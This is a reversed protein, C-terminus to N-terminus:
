AEALNSQSGDAHTVLTGPVEYTPLPTDNVSFFPDGSEVLFAGECSLYSQTRSWSLSYATGAWTFSPALVALTTVLAVLKHLM